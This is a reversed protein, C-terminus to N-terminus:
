TQPNASSDVVTVETVLVVKGAGNALLPSLDLQAGSGGGGVDDTSPGSVLGALQNPVSDIFTV